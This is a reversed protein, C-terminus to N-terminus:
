SSATHTAIKRERLTTEATQTPRNQTLDKHRQYANGLLLPSSESESTQAGLSSQLTAAALNTAKASLELAPTLNTAAASQMDPRVVIDQPAIDRYQQINSYVDQVVIVGVHFEKIILIPDANQMTERSKPLYIKSGINLDPVPINQQSFYAPEKYIPFQGELAKLIKTCLQRSWRQIRWENNYELDVDMAVLIGKEPEIEVLAGEDNTRYFNRKLEFSASADGQLTNRGQIENKSYNGALKWSLQWLFRRLWHSLSGENALHKDPFPMPRGSPLRLITLEGTHLNLRGYVKM